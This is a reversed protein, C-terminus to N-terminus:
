GGSRLCSFCLRNQKIHAWRDTVCSDVFKRCVNIKHQGKCIPCKGSPQSQKPENETAHLVVRRRSDSQQLTCVLNALDSLWNSFDVVTPYPKIAAAQRAWDMRKSIPLKSILEELLTPNSLHQVGNVSQLFVSLNKTKTAFPILKEIASESIPNIEKVLQLQSRILSEPRGFRFQLQEMVSAVNDPHILLSKVVERAEGKLCKLLRQNNELNTYGYAATSQIFANSFLPWDEAHGSFEPLDQIKRPMQYNGGTILSQPTHIGNILSDANTITPPRYPLASFVVNPQYGYNLNPLTTTAPQSAVTYVHAPSGFPLSSSQVTGTGSLQVHPTINCLSNPVIHEVPQGNYRTSEDFTRRQNNNSVLVQTERLQNELSKIKEILFSVQQPFSHENELSASRSTAATNLNYAAVGNHAIPMAIASSTTANEIFSTAIPPIIMATAANAIHPTTSKDPAAAVANAAPTVMAPAFTAIPASAAHIVVPEAAANSLSVLPAATNATVAPSSVVPATSTAPRSPVSSAIANATATAATSSTRAPQATSMTLLAAAANASSTSMNSSSQTLERTAEQQLRSSRRPPTYQTPM